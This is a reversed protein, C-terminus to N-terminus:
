TQSSAEGGANLRRAIIQRALRSSPPQILEFLDRMAAALRIYGASREIPQPQSLYDLTEGIALWRDLDTEEEDMHADYVRLRVVRRCDARIM